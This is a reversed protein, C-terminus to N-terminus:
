RASQIRKILAADDPLLESHPLRGVLERWNAGDPGAFVQAFIPLSEDVRKM